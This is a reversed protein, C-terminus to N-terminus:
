WLCHVEYIAGYYYMTALGGYMIQHPVGCPAKVTECGIIITALNNTTIVEEMGGMWM